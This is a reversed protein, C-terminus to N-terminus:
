LVTKNNCEYKCITPRTANQEYKTIWMSPVKNNCSTRACTYQIDVRPNSQMLSHPCFNIVVCLLATIFYNWLWLLLSKISSQKLRIYLNYIRRRVWKRSRHFGGKFRRIKCIDCYISTSSLTFLSRVKNETKKLWLFKPYDPGSPLNISFQHDTSM